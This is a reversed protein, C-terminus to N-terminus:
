KCMAQAMERLEQVDPFAEIAWRADMTRPQQRLDANAWVITRAIEGALHLDTKFTDTSLSALRRMWLQQHASPTAAAVVADGPRHVRVKDNRALAIRCVGYVADQRTEMSKIFVAWFKPACRELDRERQFRLVAITCCAFRPFNSCGGNQAVDPSFLWAHAPSPTAADLAFLVCHTWFRALAEDLAARTTHDVRADCVRNLVLQLTNRELLRDLVYVWLCAVGDQLACAMAGRWVAGVSGDPEFADLQTWDWNLEWSLSLYTLLSVSTSKSGAGILCFEIARSKARRYDDRSDCLSWLLIRELADRRCEGQEGIDAIYYDLAIRTLLRAYANWTAATAARWVPLLHQTPEKSQSASGGDTASIDVEFMGLSRLLTHQMNPQHHRRRRRRHHHHHLVRTLPQLCGM